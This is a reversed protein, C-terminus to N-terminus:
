HQGRVAGADSIGGGGDCSRRSDAWVRAHNRGFPTIIDNMTDVCCLVCAVGILFGSQSDRVKAGAAAADDALKRLVEAVEGMGTTKTYCQREVKNRSTTITYVMNFAKKDDVTRVRKAIDFTHDQRYIGEPDIVKQQLLVQYVRRPKDAMYHAAM